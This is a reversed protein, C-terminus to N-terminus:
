EAKKKFIKGLGFSGKKKEEADETKNEQGVEKLKEVRIENPVKRAEEEVLGFYKDLSPVKKALNRFGAVLKNVDNFKDNMDKTLKRETLELRSGMLEILSSTRKEFVSFKAMLDEVEKKTAMSDIKVSLNDVDSILKKVSSNLDNTIDRFRNMDSFNKTMETFITEVRESHRQTMAQTKKIEILDAKVSESMKLTEEVGRMTALKTRMERLESLLNNIMAEHSDLSARVAEVKADQRRMVIMLKDPQVSEILDIAQTAKAELHQKARDMDIMMARLEGIQESIRTFREGSAKQLEYFSTFQAKLKELELAVRDGSTVGKPASTDSHAIPVNEFTVDEAPQEDNEGAAEEQKKKSFLGM